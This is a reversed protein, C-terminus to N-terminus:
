NKELYKLLDVISKQDDYEVEHKKTYAKLVNEKGILLKSLQRISLFKNLKGDVEIWYNVSSQTQLGEPLKMEYARGGAFYRSFSTIASTQSTGGYGAPKGPEMLKCKHVAYLLYKSKYILEFFINEKPIFKRDLIYVTDILELQGLALKTGRTEFIMEETLSNYNLEAENRIGTKMLVGGKTFEPFLYHTVEPSKTQGFCFSLNFCILVLIYIRKRFTIRIM